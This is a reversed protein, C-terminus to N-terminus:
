ENTGGGVKNALTTLVTKFLEFILTGTAFGGLGAAIGVPLVFVWPFEYYIIVVGSCAAFAPMLMMELAFMRILTRSRIVEMEDLERARRALSGMFVAAAAVVFIQLDFTTQAM